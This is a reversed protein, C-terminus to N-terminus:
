SSSPLDLTTSEPHHDAVLIPYPSFEELGEGM